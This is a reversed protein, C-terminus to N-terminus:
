YSQREHKIFAFFTALMFGYFASILNAQLLVETIGFISFGAVFTAATLSIINNTKIYYYSFMTLPLFLMGILGIIGLLGNSALMEFYQSHAHGRKIGLHWNTIEGREFLKQNFTEREPYTLGIFPSKLFAKLASEWLMIRGGSSVSDHINGSTISSFEEITFNIRKQFNNSTFFFILFIMLFSISILLVKKFNFNTTWNLLAIFSTIIPIAFIAGRTLTLFTSICAAIFALRLYQKYESDFSLCIALFALSCSLYGFNISYLWGDVRTYGLFFYQYIAILLSCFSGAIIGLSLAKIHFCNDALTERIFIYIPICLLLRIGGQFYRFEGTDIFVNPINVVFYISLCTIVLCDFTDYVLSINDKIIFFISYAILLAITIVSFNKTWLLLFPVLFLAAVSLTRNIYNLNM